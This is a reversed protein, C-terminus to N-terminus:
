GIDTGGTQKASMRIRFATGIAFAVAVHLGIFGAELGINTWFSYRSPDPGWLMDYLWQIVLVSVLDLAMVTLALELVYQWGRRQRVYRPRLVLANAYVAVASAAVLVASALMNLLLTPHHDRSVAVWGGLLALWITFHCLIRKM